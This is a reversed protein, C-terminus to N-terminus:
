TKRRPIACSDDEALELPESTLLGGPPQANRFACDRAPEGPRLCPQSRRARRPKASGAPATEKSAIRSALAATSFSLRIVVDVTAAIRTAAPMLAAATKEVVTTENASPITLVMNSVLSLPIPITSPDDISTIEPATTESLGSRKLAGLRCGSGSLIVTISRFSSRIM